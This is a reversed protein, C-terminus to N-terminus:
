KYYQPAAYFWCCFSIYHSVHNELFSFFFGLDQACLSVPFVLHKLIGAFESMQSPLHRICRPYWIEGCWLLGSQFLQM